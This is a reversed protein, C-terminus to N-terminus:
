NRSNISDSAYSLNHGEKRSFRSYREQPCRYQICSVGKAYNNVGSLMEMLISSKLIYSWRFYINWTKEYPITYPNYPSYVLFNPFIYNPLILSSKVSGPTICRFIHYIRRILLSEELNILLKQHLNM